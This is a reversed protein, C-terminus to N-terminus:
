CWVNETAIRKDRVRMKLCNQHQETEITVIYSTMLPRTTVGNKLSFAYNKVEKKEKLVLAQPHFSTFYKNM